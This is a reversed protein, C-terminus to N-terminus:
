SRSVRSRPSPTVLSVQSENEVGEEARKKKSGRGWAEKEFVDQATERRKVRREAGRAAKEDADKDSRKKAIDSWQKVATVPDAKKMKRAKDMAIAVAQDQLKGSEVLESINESITEQSDGDKLPM